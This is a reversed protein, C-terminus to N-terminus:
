IVSSRVAFDRVGDLSEKIISAMQKLNNHTDTLVVIEEEMKEIKKIMEKHEILCMDCEDLPPPEVNQQNKMPPPESNYFLRNNRESPSNCTKMYLGALLMIIILYAFNNISTM